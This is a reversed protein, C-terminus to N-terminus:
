AGGLRRDIIMPRASFRWRIEIYIGNAVVDM